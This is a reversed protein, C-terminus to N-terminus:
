KSYISFDISTSVGSWFYTSDSQYIRLTLFSSSPCKITSNLTYQRFIINNNSISHIIDFSKPILKETFCLSLRRRVTHYGEFIYYDLMSEFQFVLRLIHLISYIEDLERDRGFRKRIIVVIHLVLDRVFIPYDM